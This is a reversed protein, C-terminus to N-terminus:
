AVEHPPGAEPQCPHAPHLLCVPWLKVPRADPGRPGFLQHDQPLSAPPPSWVTTIDISNDAISPTTGSCSDQEDPIAKTEDRVPEVGLAWLPLNVRPEIKFGNQIEKKKGKLHLIM